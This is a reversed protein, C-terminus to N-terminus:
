KLLFCLGISADTPGFYIKTFPQGDRDCATCSYRDYKLWAVGLGIGVELGWRKAFAWNYGYSVGGGIAWGDYRYQKDFLLPVNHQSINYRSYLAHVGFFHGNFRECLWWRYEGKLIMHVLKKNSELSGSLHWPNYSGSFELSSKKGTGFEFALNPTLTSFGYLLNTKVAFRPLEGQNLAFEGAPTTRSTFDRSVEAQKETRVITYVTDVSPEAAARPPRIGPYNDFDSPDNPYYRDSSAVTGSGPNQKEPKQTVAVINGNFSYTFGTGGTIATMAQELSLDQRPFVVTRYNDFMRSNYAVSMKTQQEIQSFAELITMRRDSLKVRQSQAGATCVGLLLVAAPLLKKLISRVITMNPQKEKRM